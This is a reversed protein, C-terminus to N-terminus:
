DNDDSDATYGDDTDSLMYFYEEEVSSDTTHSPPPVLAPLFNSLYCM